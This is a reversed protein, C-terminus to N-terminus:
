EKPLFIKFTSGKGEKSEVKIYGGERQIIERSLYLGIGIGEEQQVSDSRYFRGFIEAREEERIGIGQDKVAICFYMEYAKGEVVIKSGRPSYKVANDLINYLAEQTWKQDFRAQEEVEGCIELQIQKQQAKPMIEATAATVLGEAKQVSPCIEFVDSELRSMKVLAMTLFELKKAYIGIQEALYKEQEGQMQEQLLETYLLINALPTKMQHSIDSIMSKINEREARTRELSMGSMAFYQKWKSELRSLKTENYEEETFTGNIAKTLMEDLKDLTRTTRFISM